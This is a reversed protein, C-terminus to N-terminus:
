NLPFGHAGKGLIGNLKNKLNQLPIPDFLMETGRKGVDSKSAGKRTNYMLKEYDVLVEYLKFERDQHWNTKMGLEIRTQQFRERIFKEIRLQM